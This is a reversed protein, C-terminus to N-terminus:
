GPTKDENTDYPRVYRAASPITALYFLLAVINSANGKGSDHESFASFVGLVAPRISWCRSRYEVSAGVPM